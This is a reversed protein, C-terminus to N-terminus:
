TLRRPLSRRERRVAAPVAAARGNRVAALGDPRTFLSRDGPLVDHILRVYPPLPDAGASSQKYRRVRQRYRYDSVEAGLVKVADRESVRNTTHAPTKSRRHQRAWM